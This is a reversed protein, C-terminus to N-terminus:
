ILGISVAKESENGREEKKQLEGNTKQINLIRPHSKSCLVNLAGKM